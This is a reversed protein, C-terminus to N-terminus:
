RIKATEHTPNRGCLHQGPHVICQVFNCNPLPKERQRQAKNLILCLKSFIRIYKSIACISTSSIQAGLLLPAICTDLKM